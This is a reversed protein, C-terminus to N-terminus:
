SLTVYTFLISSILHLWKIWFLMSRNSFKINLFFQVHKHAVCRAKSSFRATFTFLLQQLKVNCYGQAAITPRIKHQVFESYTTNAMLNVIRCNTGHANPIIVNENPYTATKHAVDTIVLEQLLNIIVIICTVKLKIMIAAGSIAGISIYFM